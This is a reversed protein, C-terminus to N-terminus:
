GRHFASQWISDPQGGARCVDVHHPCFIAVLEDKYLSEYKSFFAHAEDVCAQVVAPSSDGKIKSACHSLMMNGAYVRFNVKLDGKVMAVWRPHSKAPIM